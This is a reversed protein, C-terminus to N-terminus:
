GQSGKKYITACLLQKGDDNDNLFSTLFMFSTGSDSHRRMQAGYWISNLLLRNVCWRIHSKKGGTCYLVTTKRNNKPQLHTTEPGCSSKWGLISFKEYYLRGRLGQLSLVLSKQYLDLWTSLHSAQPTRSMEKRKKCDTLASNRKKQNTGKFISVVMYCFTSPKRSCLRGTSPWEWIRGPISSWRLSLIPQWLAEYSLLAWRRRFARVTDLNWLPDEVDWEGRSM